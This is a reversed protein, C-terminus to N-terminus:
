FGLGEFASKMLDRGSRVSKNFLDSDNVLGDRPPPEDVLIGASKLLLLFSLHFISFGNFYKSLAVM